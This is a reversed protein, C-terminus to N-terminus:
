QNNHNIYKMAIEENEEIAIEVASKAVDLLEESQQKLAFSKQVLVAIETQIEQAIIPIIVQQIESPKWHQIISGGADREAQLQM